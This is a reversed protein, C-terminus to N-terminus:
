RRWGVIIEIERNYRQFVTEAYQPPASDRYKMAYHWGYGLGGTFLVLGGVATYAFAKMSGPCDGQFGSICDGADEDYTVTAGIIGVAAATLGMLVMNRGAAKKMHFDHLGEALEADGALCLAEHKKLLESGRWAEWEPRVAGSWAAASYDLIPQFHITRRLLVNEPTTNRPLSAVAARAAAVPGNPCSNQASAPTAIWCNIGLLVMLHVNSSSIRM